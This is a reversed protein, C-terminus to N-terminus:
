SSNSGKDRQAILGRQWEVLESELYGRARESLKVSKPFKGQKILEKRQTRKLGCFQDVDCERIIKSLKDNAIV